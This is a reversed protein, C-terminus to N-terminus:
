YWNTWRQKLMVVINVIL